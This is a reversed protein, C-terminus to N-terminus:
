FLGLPTELGAMRSYHCVAAEGAREELDSYAIEPSAGFGYLQHLLNLSFEGRCEDNFFGYVIRDYVLFIRIDDISQM